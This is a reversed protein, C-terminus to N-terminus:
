IKWVMYLIFEEKKVKLVLKSMMQGLFCKKVAIGRVKRGLCAMLFHILEAEVVELRLVEIIIGIIQM